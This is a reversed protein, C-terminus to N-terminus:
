VEILPDYCAHRFSRIIRGYWIWEKLANTNNSNFCYLSTEPRKQMRASRCIYMKKTYIEQHWIWWSIIHGDFYYIYIVHVFRCFLSIRHLIPRPCAKIRSPLFFFNYFPIFFFFFGFLILTSSHLFFLSNYRKAIPPFRGPVKM